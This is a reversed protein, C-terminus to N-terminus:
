MLGTHGLGGTGRDTSDWIAIDQEEITFDLSELLMSFASWQNSNERLLQFFTEPKIVFLMQCFRRGSKISFVQKGNNYLKVKVSGTFGSDIVGANSCEVSHNIGIGSKTKILGGLFSPIKVHLQTDVIVNERPMLHIGVPTRIDYGMDTDFSKILNNNKFEQHGNHM